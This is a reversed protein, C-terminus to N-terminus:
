TDSIAVYIDIIKLPAAVLLVRPANKAENFGIPVYSMRVEEIPVPIYQKAEYFVADKLEEKKVGPFELFRTFVSFEPLAVVISKNKIKSDEYLKKLVEALKKQDSKDESNIVGSPTIQSGFNVLQPSTTTIGKLEVAKVSHTGFDIGVHDPLKAM